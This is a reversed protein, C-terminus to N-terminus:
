RTINKRRTKKKHCQGYKCKSLKFSTNKRYKRGRGNLNAFLDPIRPQRSLRPAGQPLSGQINENPPMTVTGVNSPPQRSLMSPQHNYSNLISRISNIFLPDLNHRFLLFLADILESTAQRERTFMNNRLRMSETYSSHIPVPETFITELRNRIVMLQEVERMIQETRSVSRTKIRSQARRLLHTASDYVKDTFELLEPVTMSNLIRLHSVM